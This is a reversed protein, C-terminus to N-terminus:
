IEPFASHERFHQRIIINPLFTEMFDQLDDPDPELSRIAPIQIRVLAAKASTLVTWTRKKM